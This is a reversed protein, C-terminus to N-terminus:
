LKKKILKTGRLIDLHEKKITSAAKEIYSQSVDQDEKLKYYIMERNPLNDGHLEDGQSLDYINIEFGYDNPHYANCVMVLRNINRNEFTIEDYTIYDDNGEEKIKPNQYGLEHVLFSFFQLSNNLFNNRKEEHMTM